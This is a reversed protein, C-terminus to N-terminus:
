VGKEFHGSVSNDDVSKFYMSTGFLGGEEHTTVTALEQEDLGQENFVRVSQGSCGFFLAALLLVLFM